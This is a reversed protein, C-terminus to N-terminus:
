YIPNINNFPSKVLGGGGWSEVHNISTGLCGDESNARLYMSFNLTYWIALLRLICHDVGSGTIKFVFLEGLSFFNRWKLPGRWLLILGPTSWQIRLSKSIHCVWAVSINNDSCLKLRNPHVLKLSLQRLFTTQWFYINFIFECSM